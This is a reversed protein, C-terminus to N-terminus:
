ITQWPLYYQQRVMNDPVISRLTNESDVMSKIEKLRSSLNVMYHLGPDCYGDSNFTKKM